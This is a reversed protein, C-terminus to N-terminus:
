EVLRLQLMRRKNSTDWSDGLLGIAKNALSRLPHVALRSM